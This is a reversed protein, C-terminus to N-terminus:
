AKNTIIIIEGPYERLEKLGHTFVTFTINKSENPQLIINNESAIIYPSIEGSSKITTLTTDQYNNTITIDRSGSQNAVIGGFTLQGPELDFGPNESLYFKAPIRQKDLPMNIFLLFIGILIASTLYIIKIKKGM